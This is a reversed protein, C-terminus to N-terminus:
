YKVFNFYLIEESIKILFWWRDIILIERYKARNGTEVQFVEVESISGVWKIQRPTYNPTQNSWPFFPELTTWSLLIQRIRTGKNMM